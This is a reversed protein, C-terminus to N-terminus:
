GMKISQQARFIMDRLIPNETEKYVQTFVKILEKFFPTNENLGDTLITRLLENNSMEFKEATETLKPQFELLIQVLDLDIQNIRDFNEAASTHSVLGDFIKLPDDVIINQDKIVKKQFFDNWYYIRSPLGVWRQRHGKPPVIKITAVKGEKQLRNIAGDVKGPNWNLVEALEKLTVPRNFLSIRRELERDTEYRNGKPM